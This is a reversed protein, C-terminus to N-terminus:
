KQKLFPGEGGLGEGAFLKAEKIHSRSNLAATDWASSCCEVRRHTCGCCCLCCPREITRGCGCLAKVARWCARNSGGRRGLVVQCVVWKIGAQPDYHNWASCEQSPSDIVLHASRAARTAPSCEKKRCSKLRQRKHCHAPPTPLVSDKLCIVQWGDAIYMYLKSPPHGALMRRDWVCARKPQHVKCGKKDCVQLYLKCM